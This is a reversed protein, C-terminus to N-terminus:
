LAMTEDGAQVWIARVLDLRQLPIAWLDWSLVLGDAGAAFFARLDAEMQAPTLRTVGEIEVLEIGALLTTVGEARARRAEAGLAAPALGRERLAMRTPPLPLRTALSLWELAQPETAWRQAVLWDALGLLEFPLGAPGLTHGYAMIKIWDCCSDLAGLDQGVMHTLAPSFCDLGVALGQTHILHATAQLFRTISHTRFDLFARLAALAPDSSAPFLPNLLVRVFSPGCESRAALRRIHRRAAELDFGEASAARQCDDCFCALLRAPNAAPSPYRIRDLFVGRYHGGRLVDYLHNWVAERVAPRNPCVFTFEPMARFGPVPHGDLGITQWEPPPVFTGDGTLLPHWRFLHAGTRTAEEACAHLLAHPLNWGLLVLSIPLEECAARLRTRAEHPAIEAVGPRDELYQIAFTAM